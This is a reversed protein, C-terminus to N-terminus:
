LVVFRQEGGKVVGRIVENNSHLMAVAVSWVDKMGQIESNVKLADRADDLYDAYSVVKFKLKPEKKVEEKKPEEKKIGGAKAEM